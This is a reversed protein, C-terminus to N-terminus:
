SDIPSAMSKLKAILTAQSASGTKEKLRKYHTYITNISLDKTEAYSRLSQGDVLAVALRAEAETLGFAERLLVREGGGAAQPDRIFAAARAQGHADRYPRVAVIYPIEGSPRPVTFAFDPACESSRLNLADALAMAFRKMADPQAITLMGRCLRLGDRQRLIEQARRNVHMATGGGGFLIVGDRLSDLAHDIDARAQVMQQWRMSLDLAQRFHPVLRQMLAIERRSVHGQDASRQIAVAGYQEASHILCGSVFYRFGYTSLFENYFADRDMDANSLIQDDYGIDGPQQRLALPVRPSLSIFQELYDIESAEPVGAGMFLVPSLTSKNVVELTAGAGEFLDASAKLACPWADPAAAASYIAEIVANLDDDLAM